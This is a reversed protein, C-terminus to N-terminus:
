RDDSMSEISHFLGYIVEYPVKTTTSGIAVEFNGRRVNQKWVVRYRVFKGPLAEFKVTVRRHIEKGIEVGLNKAIKANLDAEFVSWVTANIGASVEQNKALSVSIKATQSFEHESSIPSSGHRNDLPVDETSIVIDGDADISDSVLIPAAPLLDKKTNRSAPNQAMPVTSSPNSKRLLSIFWGVAIVVVVVIVVIGCLLFWSLFTDDVTGSPSPQCGVLIALGMLIIATQQIFRFSKANM